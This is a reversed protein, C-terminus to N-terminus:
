AVPEGWGKVGLVVGRVPHRKGLRAEREDLAEGRRSCPNAEKEIIRHGMAEKKRDECVTRVEEGGVGM